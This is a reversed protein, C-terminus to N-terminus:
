GGALHCNRVAAAGIGVPDVTISRQTQASKNGVEVAAFVNASFSQLVGSAGSASPSSTAAASLCLASRMMALKLRYSVSLSCAAHDARIKM